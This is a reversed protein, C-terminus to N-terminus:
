GRTADSAGGSQGVIFRVSVSIEVVNETTGYMQFSEKGGNHGSLDSAGYRRPMVLSSTKWLVICKRYVVEISGHNM